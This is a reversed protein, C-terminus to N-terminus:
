EVKEFHIYLLNYTDKKEEPITEDICEIEFRFYAPNWILKWKEGVEPVKYRMNMYDCDIAKILIIDGAKCPTKHMDPIFGGNKLQNEFMEISDLFLFSKTKNLEYQTELTRGSNSRIKRDYLIETKIWEILEKTEKKM